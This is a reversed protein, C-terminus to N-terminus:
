SGKLILCRWHEKDNNIAIEYRATMTMGRQIQRGSQKTQEDIRKIFTGVKYVQRVKHWLRRVRRMKEFESEADSKLYKKLDDPNRKKPKFCRKITKIFLNHEPKRNRMSVALKLGLLNRIYGM